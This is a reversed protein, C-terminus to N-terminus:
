DLWHVGTSASMVAGHTYGVQTVLKGDGDPNGRERPHLGYRYLVRLMDVGFHHADEADPFLWRMLPPVLWRHAGARTDTFYVFGCGVGVTFATILAYRKLPQKASKASSKTASKAAKEAAATAESAAVSAAKDVPKSETTVTRLSSPAPSRLHSLPSFVPRFRAATTLRCIHARSAM